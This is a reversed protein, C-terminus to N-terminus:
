ATGRIPYNNAQVFKLGNLIAGLDPRAFPANSIDVIQAEGKPNIVFLGPEAFPKDTEQPSRPSSIYLGLRRADDISLGFALPYNPKIEDAFTKAKEEPDTSVALVETKAEAYGPMLEKLGTLYRKCIPCHKGRYVVVLQWGDRPGGLKASGGGVTKLAIEPVKSGAQLKESM